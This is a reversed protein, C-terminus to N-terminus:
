ASHDSEERTEALPFSVRFDSGKGLVSQLTIDGGQLQALARAVSLGLGTGGTHRGRSQDVRYFRYFVKEQEEDAIGCGEDRVSIVLHGQQRFVKVKVMQAKSYRVGNEFLNTLIQETRELNLYATLEMDSEETLFVVQGEGKLSRSFRKVFKEVMEAVAVKDLSVAESHAETRSLLLLDSVLRTLRRVTRQAETVVEDRQEATLDERLMHLDTMLATLPNRLEHSTDALLQKAIGLLTEVRDMLSNFAQATRQIEKDAELYIPVRRTVDDTSVIKEATIVLKRLPYFVNRFALNGLVETLTLVVLGLLVTRGISGELAADLHSLSEALVLVIRSDDELKLTRTYRRFRLGDPGIVTELTSPYDLAASEFPITKRGLNESAWLRSGDEAWIDLYVEPASTQSLPSRTVKLKSFDPATRVGTERLVAQVERARNRLTQDVENLLSRKVSDHHLVGFLSLSPLLVGFLVTLFRGRLSNPLLREIINGSQTEPGQLPAQTRDM